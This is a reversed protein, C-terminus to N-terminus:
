PWPDRAMDDAVLDLWAFLPEDIREFESRTSVAFFPWGKETAIQEAEEETVAPDPVDAHTAVLCICRCCEGHKAVMEDLMRIVETMTDRQALSFFGLIGSAGKICVSLNPRFRLEGAVDWLQLKIKTGEESKLRKLKFDVGLTARYADGIDERCVAQLWSTKGARAAGLLVCKVMCDCYVELIGDEEWSTYNGTARKVLCLFDDKALKLDSIKASPLVKRGGHLLSLKGPGARISELVSKVTRSGRVQEEFVVDGAPTLIQVPFVEPDRPDEQADEVTFVATLATSLRSGM